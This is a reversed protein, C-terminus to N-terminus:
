KKQIAPRVGLKQKYLNKKKLFDIAEERTKFLDGETENWSDGKSLGMKTCGKVEALSVTELAKMKIETATVSVVKAHIPKGSLQKGEKDVAVLIGYCDVDEKVWDGPIKLSTQNTVTAKENYTYGAVESARKKSNCGQFLFFILLIIFPLQNKM